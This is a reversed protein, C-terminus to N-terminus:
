RANQKEKEWWGILHAYPLAPTQKGDRGTNTTIILEKKARTIGVYLM